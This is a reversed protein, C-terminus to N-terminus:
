LADPVESDDFEDETYRLPLQVVLSVNIGREALLKALLELSQEAAEVDAVGLVNVEKLRHFHNPTETINEFIAKCCADDSPSDIHLRLKVISSPLMESAVRLALSPHGMLLRLDTQVFELSRFDKLSGMFSKEHEGALITLTKLTWQANVLLAVRIWFPEFSTGNDPSEM